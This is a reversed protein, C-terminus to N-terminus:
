ATTGILDTTAEVRVPASALIDKIDTGVPISLIAGDLTSQTFNSIDMSVYDQTGATLTPGITVSGKSVTLIEAVFNVVFNMALTVLLALATNVVKTKM